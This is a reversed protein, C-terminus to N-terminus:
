PMAGDLLCAHEIRSRHRDPTGELLVHRAEPLLQPPLAVRRQRGPIQQAQRGVKRPPELGLPEPKAIECLLPNVGEEPTTTRRSVRPELSPERELRQEPVQTTQADDARGPGLHVIRRGTHQDVLVARIQADLAPEGIGGDVPARCEGPLENAGLARPEVPM